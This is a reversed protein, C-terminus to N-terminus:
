GAGAYKDYSPKAAHTDNRFKIDTLSHRSMKDIKVVSANNSQETTENYVEDQFDERVM